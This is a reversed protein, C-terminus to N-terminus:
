RGRPIMSRLAPLSPFENAIRIIHHADLAHFPFFNADHLHRYGAPWYRQSKETVSYARITGYVGYMEQTLYPASCRAQRLNRARRSRNQPFLGLTGPWRLAAPPSPNNPRCAFSPLTTPCSSAKPSPPLDSIAARHAPLTELVLLRRILAQAPGGDEASNFRRPFGDPSTAVCMVKRPFGIELDVGTASM